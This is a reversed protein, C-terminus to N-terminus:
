KVGFSSKITNELGTQFDAKVLQCWLHHVSQGAVLGASNRVGVPTFSVWSPFPAQASANLPFGVPNPHVYMWCEQQGRSCHFSSLATCVPPLTRPSASTSSLALSGGNVSRKPGGSRPRGPLSHLTGIMGTHRIHAQQTWLPCQSLTREPLMDPLSRVASAVALSRRCEARLRPKESKKGCPAHGYSRPTCSRHHVWQPNPFFIFSLLLQPAATGLSQACCTPACDLM